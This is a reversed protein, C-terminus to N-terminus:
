AGEEELFGAPAPADAPGFALARFLRGMADAGTLRALAEEQGGLRAARAEIGLRRLWEGQPVPGWVAAGSERGARMLAAFDVHASMDAEGPRSLPDVPEHGSVAQM